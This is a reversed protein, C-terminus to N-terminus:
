RTAPAGSTAAASMSRLEADLSSFTQTLSELQDNFNSQRREQETLKERLPELIRNFSDYLNNVDDRLQTSLIQRLEPVSKAFLNEAEVRHKSLLRSCAMWLAAGGILGLAEVVGAAGWHGMIGLAIAALISPAVLILFFFCLRRSKPLAPKLGQELHMNQVTQNVIQDMRQGFRRRQAKWFSEDPRLEDRLQVKLGEQVQDAVFIATNSIDDEVIASAHEWRELAPTRVADILMRELGEVKRRESLICRFAFQTTLRQQIRRALEEGEHKLDSATAEVMPQLKSLTRERHAALEADIHRMVSGKDERSSTRTGAQLQIAGLIEWAIRLANALKSVRPGSGGLSRSIHEELAGFGSDAMLRERDLGSSKALYAKKASVPFIPFEREFRQRALQRMYDLIAAIEEPTRLDCQQLVFMVHRMWHRHVKELFQWASAGWPNMASFVFIVLDAMPVFRETIEQHESEISNTGPTDVIHFDKLFDAPVYVEELTKTVQVHRETTGHKFFCIRDTTPMVGTRSFEAGFLANLFTSKGVNVEGVIVFVFPDKLSSVLNNLIVAHDPDTGAEPVLRALSFLATGLRSRLDFYDQGIM